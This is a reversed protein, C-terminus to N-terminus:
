KGLVFTKDQIPMMNVSLKAVDCCCKDLADLVTMEDNKLANLMKFLTKVEKLILFALRRPPTRIHCLMVLAFGEAMHLTTAMDPKTPDHKTPDLDTKQKNPVKEAANKWTTLLQWLMRLANDLLATQGDVSFPFINLNKRFLFNNLIKSTGNRDKNRVYQVYM